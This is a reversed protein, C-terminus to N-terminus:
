QSLTQPNALATIEAFQKRLLPHELIAKVYALSSESLHRSLTPEYFQWPEFFTKDPKETLTLIQNNEEALFNTLKQLTNEDAIEGKLYGEVDELSVKHPMFLQFYQIKEPQANEWNVLYDSLYGPIKDLNLGTQLDAMINDTEVENKTIHTINQEKRFKKVLYNIYLSKGNIIEIYAIKKDKLFTSNRLLYNHLDLCGLLGSNDIAGADIYHGYGPIKAAPSFVPFRNTTSVAQYYPLTKDNHLEALNEAFPFIANFNNAKVSWLIGRSGKTSATNMILSPFYGTKLFAQKWYDRFSTDYLQTSTIDEIHNQYKRMAYYPRDRLSYKQNLPWIKRYSDLGFTFTLDISTYNQRSITDIKQQIKNFNLGDERHLGTYLALGLSGGSAGSLAITNELLKGQSQIQLLNVVNLTWVNAKLGGGHSAIFFLTPNEKKQISDWFQGENLPFKTNEVLDLEHTRTEIAFIRSAIVLGIIVSSLAFIIKFRKTSFLDLKKAVFFYKGLSAIIFYYFYFFALLIPIGNILGWGKISAITAQVLVMLSFIFNVNFLTLYNESKEFYKIFGIFISIPILLPNELTNKVKTSVTRLLRFFVYNFMLVYSTLLLIVFGGPSFNAIFVTIILLLLSIFGVIFYGIGLRKYYRTLKIANEELQTDTLKEGDKDKTKQYSTFKEKWYIYTILPVLLLSYIITKVVPLPFNEFILNPQFSSVIFHIWVGHILLGISYRLYNAWNDPVYNTGKKTTYIYAPFKKLPWFHFPKVTKWNTYDGSNNLNAAYYTYIPYHSLVIALANIFLFALLLSFKSNQNEVLDVMMTFAQDMKTLLLLIIVIVLLSLISAKFFNKFSKKLHQLQALLCTYNSFCTIIKVIFHLLDKFFSIM